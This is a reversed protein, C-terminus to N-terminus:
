RAGGNEGTANPNADTEPGNRLADMGIEIARSPGVEAELAHQLHGPKTPKKDSVNFSVSCGKEPQDLVCSYVNSVHLFYRDIVGDVRKAEVIGFGKKENWFSIKGTIKM